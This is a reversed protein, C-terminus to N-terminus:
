ERLLDEVRDEIPVEPDKYAPRTVVETTATPEAPTVTRGIPTVSPAACAVLLVTALLLANVSLFIKRRM